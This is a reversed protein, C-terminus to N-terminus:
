FEMSYDVNSDTSATHKDKDDYIAKLKVASERMLATLTNVTDHAREISSLRARKEEYTFPGNESGYPGRWTENVM